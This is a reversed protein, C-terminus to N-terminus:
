ENSSFMFANSLRGCVGFFFKPLWLWEFPKLLSPWNRRVDNLVNASLTATVSSKRLTYRALYLALLFLSFLIGDSVTDSITQLVFWATVPLERENNLLLAGLPPPVSYFYSNPPLPRELSIWDRRSYYWFSAVVSLVSIEVRIFFM